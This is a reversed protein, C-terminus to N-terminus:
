GEFGTLSIGHSLRGSTCFRTWVIRAPVGRSYYLVALTNLSQAVDPHNPGVNKEAVELAAQALRLARAYQGARYLEMAEQNLTEWEIGAGRALAQSTTMCLMLTMIIASAAASTRM